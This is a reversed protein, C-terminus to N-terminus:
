QQLVARAKWLYSKLRDSKRFFCVLYEEGSQKQRRWYIHRGNGTSGPFIRDEPEVMSPLRVNMYKYRTASSMSIFSIELLRIYVDIVPHLSCPVIVYCTSFIVAVVFGSITWRTVSPIILSLQWLNFKCANVQEQPLPERHARCVM